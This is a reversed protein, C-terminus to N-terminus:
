EIVRFEVDISGKRLEERRTDEDITDKFQNLWKYAEQAKTAVYMLTQLDINM